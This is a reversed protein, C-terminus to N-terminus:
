STTASLNGQSTTKTSELIGKHRAMCSSRFKKIRAQLNEQPLLLRPKSGTADKSSGVTQESNHPWAACCPVACNERTNPWTSPSAGKAHRTAVEKPGPADVTAVKVYARCRM